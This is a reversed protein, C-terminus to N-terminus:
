PQSSQAPASRAPRIASIRSWSGRSDSGALRKSPSTDESGERAKRFATAAAPAPAAPTSKTRSTWWCGPANSKAALAAPAQGSGGRRTGRTVSASHTSATSIGAATIEGRTASVRRAPLPWLRALRPAIASAPILAGSGSSVRTWRAVATVRVVVGSRFTTPRRRPLSVGSSHTM